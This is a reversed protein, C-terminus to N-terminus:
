YILKEKRECTISQGDKNSLLLMYSYCCLSSDATILTVVGSTSDPKLYVIDGISYRLTARASDFRHIEYKMAKYKAQIIAVKALSDAVIGAHEIDYKRREEAERLNDKHKLYAFIGWTILFGVLCSFFGWLFAKSESKLSKPPPSIPNDSLNNKEEM